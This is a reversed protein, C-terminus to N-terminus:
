NNNKAANKGNNFATQFIFKATDAATPDAFVADPPPIPLPVQLPADQLNDLVALSNVLDDELPDAEATGADIDAYFKNIAARFATTAAQMATRNSASQISTNANDMETLALNQKATFQIEPVSNIQTNIQILLRSM